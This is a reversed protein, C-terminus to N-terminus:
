NGGNKCDIEGSLPDISIAIDISGNDPSISQLFPPFQDSLQQTQDASRLLGIGFSNFVSANTLPRVTIQEQGTSEGEINIMFRVTDEGGELPGGMTDSLYDINVGTATGGNPNLTIEFDSADSKSIVKFGLPPVAVPTFM